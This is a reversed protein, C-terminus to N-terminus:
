KNVPLARSYVALLMSIFVLVSGILEIPTLTEKLMFFAMLLCFVPEATSILTARSAGVKQVGKLFFLVALLTNMVAMALTILIQQRTLHLILGLDSHYAPIIIIVALLSLTATISLPDNVALTKQGILSYFTYCLCALLAWTIGRVSLDHGGGLLGSILAIGTLALALGVFLRPIFKEKFILITLIAVMVPHTFFIVTTLGASLTELAFFYFLGSSTLFIGQAVVMPSLSLLRGHICFKVLGGLLIFSFLYRLLLTSDPGLGAAYAIKVLIPLTAYMLASFLIYASGKFNPSANSFM